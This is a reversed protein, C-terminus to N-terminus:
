DGRKRLWVIMVLQVWEEVRDFLNMVEWESGIAQGMYPKWFHGVLLYEGQLHCICHKDFCQIVKLM